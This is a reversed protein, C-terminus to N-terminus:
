LFGLCALPVEAGAQADEVLGVLHGNQGHADVTKVESPSCSRLRYLVSLELQSLIDLCSSIPRVNLRYFCSVTLGPECSSRWSSAGTGGGLM